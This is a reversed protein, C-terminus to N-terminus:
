GRVTRPEADQRALGQAALPDLGRGVEHIAARRWTLIGGLAGIVFLGLWEVTM